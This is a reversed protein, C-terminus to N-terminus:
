VNLLEMNDLLFKNLEKRSNCCHAATPLSNWRKRIQYSFSSEVLTYNPKFISLNRRNPDQLRTSICGSKIVKNGCAFKDKFSLHHAMLLLHLQRRESLFLLNLNKHLLDTNERKPLNCIIRIGKNQLIQLRSILSANTNSYFLSGYDFLTLIMSKYLTLATGKTISSRIRSLQSLRFAVNQILSNTYKVFKLQMDITLGLYKYDLVYDIDSGGIKLKQQTNLFNQISIKPKKSPFIMSKTKKINLDLLNERCWSHLINLDSQLLNSSTEISDSVHFLVTDDAFLLTQSNKIHSPLDNMYVIFLLPGLSSGQPVGTTVLRYDSLTKNCFVRQRRNSLYNRMLQQASFSMGLYKLKLLLKNHHVTDFAKKIDIFTAVCSHNNNKGLYIQDLFNVIAEQTSLSNRFGFQCPSLMEYHELYSYYQYHIVKELIKGPLPISAILRYNGPDHCNGSKFLPTVITKKWATPFIGTNLSLNYLFCFQPILIKMTTKFLWSSIGPLGSSKHIEIKKILLKLQEYGVDLFSFQETIPPNVSTVSNSLGLKEATTLPSITDQINTAVSTFFQNLRSPAPDTIETKSPDSSQHLTNSNHIDDKLTINKTARSKNSGWLAKLEQWFKRPNLRNKELNNKTFENKANKCLSNVKKRLAHALTWDPDLKTLRAKSYADDRRIMFEFIDHTIWESKM